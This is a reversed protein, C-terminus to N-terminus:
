TSVKMLEHFSILFKSSDIEEIQKKNKIQMNTLWYQRNTRNKLTIYYILYHGILSSTKTVLISFYSSSLHKYLLNFSSLRLKQLNYVYPCYSYLIHKIKYLTEMHIGWFEKSVIFEKFITYTYIYIFHWPSKPIKFFVRVRLVFIVRM